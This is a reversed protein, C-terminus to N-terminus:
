LITVAVWTPTSGGCEFLDYLDRAYRLSWSKQEGRGIRRCKNFTRYTRATIDLLLCSYTWSNRRFNPHQRHSLFSSSWPLCSRFCLPQDYVVCPACKYCTNIDPEQSFLTKSQSEEQRCQVHSQLCVFIFDFVIDHESACWHENMPNQVALNQLIYVGGPLGWCSGTTVHDRSLRPPISRMKHCHAHEPQCLYYTYVNFQALPLMSIKLQEWQLIGESFFSYRFLTTWFSALSVVAHEYSKKKFLRLLKTCRGSAHLTIATRGRHPSRKQGKRLVDM